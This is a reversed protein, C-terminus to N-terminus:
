LTFSIRQGDTADFIMLWHGGQQVVRAKGQLAKVQKPKQLLRLTAGKLEMGPPMSIEAAYVKEKKNLTKVSIQIQDIIKWRAAIHEMTTIWADQKRATDILNGLPYITTSNYGSFLPHGLYVMMGGSTLTNKQWFNRLYGDFLEAKEEIDSPNVAAAEQIMRFYFYDDKAVPSIEILDLVQYNEGQFVPLHYPYLSGQFHLTHDIGISSEYSYGKRQLFEMGWVSNLTYPFRFGSFNQDWVQENMELQLVTESFTLNRMNTKRWGNSQLQHPTSKLYSRIEEDLDGNVFLTPTVNKDALLGFTRKYAELDGDANLSVAFAAPHGDPWPSLSVRVPWQKYFEDLVMSCFADIQVASWHGGENSPHLLYSSPLLFSLGKGYPNMVLAPFETSDNKWTALVRANASLISDPVLIWAGEGLPPILEGHLSDALNGHLSFGEMNRETMMVGFCSALPWNDPELRGHISIRDAGNRLNRGMNDGAILVGGSQVWNSIIELELDEMFTLSYTRDADHYEIATLMLLIDFRALYEKDLLADRTNIRTYAGNKMFSELALIVGEPLTGTGDKGTTIILVRPVRYLDNDTSEAKSQWLQRVGFVMMILIIVGGAILALQKKKM